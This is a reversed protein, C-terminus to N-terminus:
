PFAAVPPQAPLVTPQLFLSPPTFGNPAQEVAPPVAAVASSRHAETCQSTYPPSPSVSVLHRRLISGRM